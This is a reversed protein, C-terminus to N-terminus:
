NKLEWGNSTFAIKNVDFDFEDGNFEIWKNALKKYELARPKIQNNNKKNIMIFLGPEVLNRLGGSECIIAKESSIIEDFYSLIEPLTSDIGQVYYVENSGSRYLRNSDKGGDVSNEKAILFDKTEKLIELKNNIEHFHPSIKICIVQNKCKLSEILNCAFLTKGVNRGTGAILLINKRLNNM